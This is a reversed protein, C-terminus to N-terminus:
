PTESPKPSTFRRPSPSWGLGLAAGPGMHLVDRGGASGAASLWLSESLAWRLGLEVRLAPDRDGAWTEVRLRPSLTWADALPADVGSRLDYGVHHLWGGGLVVDVPGAAVAGGFDFGATPGAARLMGLRLEGRLAVRDAVRVTRAATGVWGPQTGGLGLAGVELGPAAMGQLHVMGYADPGFSNTYATRLSFGGAGRATAAIGLLVPLLSVM